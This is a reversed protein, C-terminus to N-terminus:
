YEINLNGNKNIWDIVAKYNLGGQEKPRMIYDYQKPHTEKMLLFRSEGKKELHCGYGCFMCGTRTCGTTTLQDDEGYSNLWDQMSLQGKIDDKTPKVIIDGYVSCYPVNYEKIYHLIDQETWFALPTSIPSKADYANCGQRLWVAERQRSEEAMTAVFPVRGTEKGYKKVPNKKMERCCLNSIPFPADILFKYKETNYISPKGNHMYRGLMMQSRVPLFSIDEMVEVDQLTLGNRELYQKTEYIKGSVEKGIFPYGYKEIVQRFNRKPRIIVVDGFSKVFDRIEPYELGTDVFVSPVNYGMSEVLHKLVTSDKGGSFSIYVGSEGYENVWNRIREQTMRIKISLPLAQWLRLDDKTHKM